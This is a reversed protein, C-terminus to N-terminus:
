GGNLSTDKKIHFWKHREGQLQISVVRKRKNNKGEQDQTQQREKVQMIHSTRDMIFIRKTGEKKQDLSKHTLRQIPALARILNPKRPREM